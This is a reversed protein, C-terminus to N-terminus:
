RWRAHAAARAAPPPARSRPTGSPVSAERGTAADRHDTHRRNGLAPHNRHARVPIQASVRRAIFSKSSVWMKRQYTVALGDIYEGPDRGHAPVVNIEGDHALTSTAMMDEFVADGNDVLDEVLWDAIGYTPRREEPLLASSLGPSELDLDLVLVRQGAQAQAWASAALATSRGVGGKISFFVIRPAGTSEPAISAWNGETALVERKWRLTIGEVDCDLPFTMWRIDGCTVGSSCIKAKFYEWPDQLEIRAAIEKASSANAALARRALGEEDFAMLKEFIELDREADDTPPLLSGLVIARVLILPKRGKWYSGLATLTQGAGAKRERQAEFSVKQAPFVTEILAPADALAGPSLTAPM